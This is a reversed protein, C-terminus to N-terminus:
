CVTSKIDLIGNDALYQVRHNRSRQCKIQTVIRGPLAAFVLKKSPSRLRV